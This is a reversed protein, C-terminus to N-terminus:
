INNEYKSFTYKFQFFQTYTILLTIDFYALAIIITSLILHVLYWDFLFIWVALFKNPAAFNLLAMKLKTGLGLYWICFHVIETVYMHIYNHVQISSGYKSLLSFLLQFFHNCFFIAYNVVYPHLNYKILWILFSFNRLIAIAEPIRYKIIKLHIIHMIVDIVFGKCCM